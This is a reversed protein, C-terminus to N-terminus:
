STQGSALLFPRLLWRQATFHAAFCAPPASVLVLVYPLLDVDDCGHSCWSCTSALVLCGLTGLTFPNMGGGDLKLM